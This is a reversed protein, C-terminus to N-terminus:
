KGCNMMSLLPIKDVAAMRGILVKRMIRLLTLSLRNSVAAVAPRNCWFWIISSPSQPVIPPIFIPLPFRLVLSFTQGLAVKDVVFGV